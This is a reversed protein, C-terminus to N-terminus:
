GKPEIHNNVRCPNNGYWLWIGAFATTDTEGMDQGHSTHAHVHVTVAQTQGYLKPHCHGLSICTKITKSYRAM